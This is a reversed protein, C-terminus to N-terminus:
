FPLPLVYTLEGFGNDQYLSGPAKRCPPLVYTDNIWRSGTQTVPNGVREAKQVLYPLNWIQAAATGQMALSQLTCLLGALEATPRYFDFPM